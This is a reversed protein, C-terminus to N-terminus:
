VLGLSRAREVAELRNRAGLKALLRRMHFEVTNETVHLAAAIERNSGGNVLEHLVEDERRTLRPKPQLRFLQHFSKHVVTAEISSEVYLASIVQDLSASSNLYADCGRRLWRECRRWDNDPGLLALRIEPVLKRVDAVMHQIDYDDLGLGILLWGPRLKRTLRSLDEPQRCRQIHVDALVAEEHHTPISQWYGVHVIRRTNASLSTLEGPAVSNM